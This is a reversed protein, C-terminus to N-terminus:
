KKRAGEGRKKFLLEYMIRFCCDIYADNRVTMRGLRWAAGEEVEVLGPYPQNPRVGGTM